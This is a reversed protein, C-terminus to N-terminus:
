RESEVAVDVGGPEVVRLNVTSQFQAQQRLTAFCSLNDFLIENFISPDFIITIVM